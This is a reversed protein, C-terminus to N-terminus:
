PYQQLAEVGDVPRDELAPPEVFSMVAPERAQAFRPGYRPTKFHLPAKVEEIRSTDMLSPAPHDRTWIQTFESRTSRRRGFRRPIAEFNLSFGGVAMKRLFSRM